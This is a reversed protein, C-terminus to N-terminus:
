SAREFGVSQRWDLFADIDVRRWKTEGNPLLNFTRLRDPYLRTIREWQAPTQSVYAAAEHRGLVAPWENVITVAPSPLPM